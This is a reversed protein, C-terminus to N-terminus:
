LREIRYISSYSGRALGAEGGFDGGGSAAQPWGLRGSPSPVVDDAMPHFRSYSKHDNFIRLTYAHLVRGLYTKSPAFVRLLNTDTMANRAFPLSLLLGIM